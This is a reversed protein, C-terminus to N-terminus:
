IRCQRQWGNNLVNTSSVTFIQSDDGSITFPPAPTVGVPFNTQGIQTFGLSNTTRQRLTIRAQAGEFSVEDETTATVTFNGALTVFNITVVVGTLTGLGTDFKNLSLTTYTGAGSATASNTFSITSQGWASGLLCLAALSGFFAKKAPHSM